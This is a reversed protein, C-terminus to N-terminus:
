SAENARVSYSLELRPSASQTTLEAAASGDHSTYLYAVDGSVTVKFIDDSERLGIANKLLNVPVPVKSIM